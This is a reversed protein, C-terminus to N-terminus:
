LTHTYLTGGENCHWYIDLNKASFHSDESVLVARDQENVRSPGSPANESAETRRRRSFFIGM